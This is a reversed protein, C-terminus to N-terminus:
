TLPCRKSPSAMTDGADKAVDGVKERLPKKWWKKAASLSGYFADEADDVTASKAKDLVERGQAEAEKVPTTAHLPVGQAGEDIAQHFKQSDKELSDQARDIGGAFRRGLYEGDTQPQPPAELCWRKETQNKIKDPEDYCSYGPHRHDPKM